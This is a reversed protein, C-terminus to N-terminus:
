IGKMTTVVSKWSPDVIVDPLEVSKPKRLKRTYISSPGVGLCYQIVNYTKKKGDVEKKKEIERIFTNVLVDVSANLFKAVSPSLAPGVEPALLTENAEEEDGLNFTRDQAIFIVNMGERTLDRYNGLWEKLTSAVDGWDRKTMSGWDGPRKKNRSGVENVLLSQLQTVTDIVITKFETRNKVLYWYVEEFDSFDEVEFVKIGKVDSISATGEDKVDIYLIPGPASGAFTTKGSGSRGYICMSLSKRLDSISKFKLSPTKKPSKM